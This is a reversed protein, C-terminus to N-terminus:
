EEYYKPIYGSEILGEATKEYSILTDWEVTGDYFGADAAQKYNGEIDLFYLFFEIQYYEDDMTYTVDVCELAEIEAFTERMNTDISSRQEETYESIPYKLISVEETVLGESNVGYQQIQIMGSDEDKKVFINSDEGKAFTRGELYDANELNNESLFATYETNLVKEKKTAGCGVVAAFIFCVVLLLGCVKNKKM